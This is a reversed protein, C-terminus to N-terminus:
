VLSGVNRRDIAGEGSSRADSRLTDASRRPTNCGSTQFDSSERADNEATYSRMFSKYVDKTGKPGETDAPNPGGHEEDPAQRLAIRGKWRPM